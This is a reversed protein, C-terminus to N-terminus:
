GRAIWFALRRWRMKGTVTLAWVQREAEGTMERGKTNRVERRRWRSGSMGQVVYQLGHMRCVSESCDDPLSLHKSPAIFM